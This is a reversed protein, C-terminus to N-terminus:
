HMYILCGVDMNKPAFLMVMYEETSDHYYWNISNYLFPDPKDLIGINFLFAISNWKIDSADHQWVVWLMIGADHLILMCTNWKGGDM